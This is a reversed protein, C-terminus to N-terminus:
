SNSKMLWRVLRQRLPDTTRWLRELLGAKKYIFPARLGLPVYDERHFVKCNACYLNQVDANYWSTRECILCKIGTIEAGTHSDLEHVIAYSLGSLTLTL